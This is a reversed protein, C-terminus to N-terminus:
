KELRGAYTPVLVTAVAGEGVLRRFANPITQTGYFADATWTAGFLHAVVLDRAAGFVRSVATWLGVVLTNWVSKQIIQDLHEDTGDTFRQVSDNFSASWYSM